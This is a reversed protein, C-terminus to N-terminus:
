MELGVRHKHGHTFWAWFNRNSTAEFLLAAGVVVFAM